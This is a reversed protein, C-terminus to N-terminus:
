KAFRQALGSLEDLVDRVRRLDKLRGKEPKVKLDGLLKQMENVLKEQRRAAKSGGAPNPLDHVAGSVAAIEAEAQAVFANSIEQM